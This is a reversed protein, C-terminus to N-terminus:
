PQEKITNQASALSTGIEVQKPPAFPIQFQYNKATSIGRVSLDVYEAQKPFKIKSTNHNLVIGSKM